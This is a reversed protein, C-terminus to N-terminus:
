LGCIRRMAEISRDYPWTQLRPSTLMDEAFQALREQPIEERGCLAIYFDEFEDADSFGAMRLLALGDEGAERLYAALFYAAARGHPIGLHMTVGYSLAHPLSTGTHAIAMGALTSATMLGTLAAADPQGLLARCHKGWIRLGEHVFTRSYDTAGMGLGSEVLHAFADLATARILSLPAGCLYKADILALKPFTRQTSSGKKKEEPRALVANPTVESGTGCTTPVMVSPLAAALGGKAYLFDAGADPHAMMIAAAKAADMPSGGGIGIVFDAGAALGCARAEMVTAVSPNEEVRDFLTWTRGEAELAATVDALAGCARASNRGTVILAHRGHAALEAAHRRVCESESYALTPLAFRM